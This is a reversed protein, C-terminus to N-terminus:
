NITGMSLLRPMLTDRLQALRKSEEEMSLIRSHIPKILKDFRHVTATWPSLIKQSSFVSKNMNGFVSGGSGGVRIEPALNTCAWYLYKGFLQDTPIVSNIQQNTQTERHNLIVLGPTAICSVSVSNEPLTKSSQSQAGVSSLMSTTEVVYIKDHMNPIKLFPVDGGYFEPNRTSPTKGTVIAGFDELKRVAWGEPIQGLESEVLNEPFLDYLEALMGPLSEGSRWRGDMKARVPEFDVFWAKFLAQAKKELTSNMRRNLEIKEDLTGLTHAIRRQEELSPVTVMYQSVHNWSARPMRTGESGSTAFDVFSQSAMNYYLFDQDIGDKARVVWIDTSCIGQSSARVVKRFYPRLKGFLIDGEIFQSKVSVVDNAKGIGTLHLTGEGIHELGIYPIDGVETPSVTNRILDACDGFTMINLNNKMLQDDRIEVPNAM